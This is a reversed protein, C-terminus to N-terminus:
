TAITHQGQEKALLKPKTPLPKTTPTTKQFITITSTSTPKHSKHYKSTNTKKTRWLM